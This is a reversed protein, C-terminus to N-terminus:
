EEAYYESRLIACHGIDRYKGKIMMSSKSVGEFSMNCKEMVRLSADNGVIYKAELRNLELEDFGFRIVKALAEAAYGQGRYHPSIVYGVEASNNDVDISTFGCTGIMKNESKLIVAWDYFEGDRYKGQVYKLYQETYQVSDHPNWLLYETVCEEKAYEYMDAADTRKMRRLILRDCELTPISSFVNFIKDKKTFFRVAKGEKGLIQM